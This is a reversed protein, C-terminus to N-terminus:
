LRVPSRANRARTRTDSDRAKKEIAAVVKHEHGREAKVELHEVHIASHQSQDVARNTVLAASGAHTAMRQAALRANTAAMMEAFGGEGMKAFKDAGSVTAKPISLLDKTGDIIGKAIFGGIAAGGPGGFYMGIGGGIAAGADGWVTSKIGLAELGVGTIQGTSYGLGAGYLGTMAAGAARTGLGAVSSVKSPIAGITPLTGHPMDNPLSKATKAAAAAAAAAADMARLKLFAFAATLLGVGAAAVKFLEPFKDHLTGFLSNQSGYKGWTYLDEAVLLLAGIALGLPLTSKGAGAFAKGLSVIGAVSGKAWAGLKSAVIGALAVKLVLSSIGMKNLPELLNSAAGWLDKAVGVVEKVVGALQKLTTKLREIFATRNARSWQNWQTLLEEMWPALQSAIVATLQTFALKARNIAIETRHANEYDEKTLLGRGKPQELAEAFGKGGLQGMKAAIAPDIGLRGAVASRIQPNLTAFKDALKGSFEDVDKVIVKGHKAFGLQEFLKTFRPFGAMAAGLAHQMGGLAGQMEEPGVGMDVAVANFAAVKTAALGTATAFREVQAVSGVAREAFEAFRRVLELGALEGLRKVGDSLSHFHHEMRKLGEEKFDFGLRVWLSDLVPV